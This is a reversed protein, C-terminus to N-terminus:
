RAALLSPNNRLVRVLEVSHTKLTDVVVSYVSSAVSAGIEEPSGSNVTVTVNIPPANIPLPNNGGGGGGGGGGGAGGGAGAHGRRTDPLVPNALVGAMEPHTFLYIWGGIADALLGMQTTLDDAFHTLATTAAASATTLLGLTTTFDKQAADLAGALATEGAKLQDGIGALQATLADHMTKLQADAMKQTDLLIQQLIKLSEAYHAPDQAQGGLQGVLAQIQSVIQQVAEPTQAGGLQGQLAAIQKFLFDGQAHVDPKWQGDVVSGIGQLQLQLISAGISKGISAAVSDVRQLMGLLNTYRQQELSLLTKAGTIADSWDISDIAKQNQALWAAPDTAFQPGANTAMLTRFDAYSQQLTKIEQIRAVIADLVAGLDALVLNWAAAVDKPNAATAIAAMDTVVRARNAAELDAPSLLKDQYKQITSATVTAIQDIFNLIGALAQAMNTLLTQGETVLAKAAAVRDDGFVTALLEGGAKLNAIAAGFSAATGEQGAAKHIFDFWQQTTQGFQTALAGFDVVVGVLDQLWTSFAKIDTSDALKQAISKITDATFGLGTLMMPIPASPDYLQHKIWNGQADMTGNNTNWNLGAAGGPMNSSGPPGYGVQGFAAQLALKPLVTEFFAKIDAQMDEASGAHIDFTASGLAASFAKKYATVYGSVGEPGAAKLALQGVYNTTADLIQNVFTGIPGAAGSLAQAIAIKVHGEQPGNIISEIGAVIVGVIAIVIAAILGYGTWGSAAATAVAVTLFPAVDAGFNANGGYNQQGLNVGQYSASGTQQKSDRLITAVTLIAAAAYGLYAATSATGGAPPAGTSWDGYQTSTAGNAVGAGALGAGAGLLGGLIGGKGQGNGMADGTILWRQLMQSLMKSFDKLISDWLSKLVDGLSSLKGSLVDYFGTDFANGLDAWLTTMTDSLDQGFSHISARIKAFGAAYGKAATDAQAVLMDAGKKAADQQAQFLTMGAHQDLLVIADYYDQYNGLQESLIKKKNLAAMEDNRKIAAAASLELQTFRSFYAAMGLLDSPMGGLDQVASRFTDVIKQANQEWTKQVKDLATDNMAISNMKTMADQFKAAYQDFVKTDALVANQDNMSRLSAAIAEAQTKFAPAAKEVADVAKTIAIDNKTWQLENAALAADLGVLGSGAGKAGLLDAFEQFRKIAADAKSTDLPPRVAIPIDGTSGLNGFPLAKGVKDIDQYAKLVAADIVAFGTALHQAVPNSLADLAKMAAVGQQLQTSIAGAAAGAGADIPSMPIQSAVAVAGMLKALFDLSTEAMRRVALSVSDIPDLVVETLLLAAKGVNEVLFVMMDAANKFFNLWSGGSAKVDDNIVGLITKVTTVAVDFAGAIGAGLTAAMSAVGAQLKGTDFDLISHLVDQMTQKIKTFADGTLAGEFLQWATKMNTTIGIWTGQLMPQMEMFAHLKAQLEEVITGQERWSKLTNNDIGMTRLFAGLQGTTRTVGMLALTMQRGAKEYSTGMVAAMDAVTGAFTVMEQASKAGGSLMGGYMMQYLGALDKFSAASQLSQKVLMQQSQVAQTNADSWQRTSDVVNGQTDVYQTFTLQLAGLALRNMELFSNFELGPEIVKHFAEYVLALGAAIGATAMTFAATLGGMVGSLSDAGSALNKTSDAMQKMTISYKNGDETVGKITTSIRKAGVDANNMETAFAQMAGKATGMSSSLDSTGITSLRVVVDYQSSSSM